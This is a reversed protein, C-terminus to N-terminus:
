AALDVLMGTEAAAAGSAPGARYGSSFFSPLSRVREHLRGELLHILQDLGAADSRGDEPLPALREGSRLLSDILVDLVRLKFISQGGEAAPVAQLHEFRAYIAQAARVPVSVRGQLGQLNQARILNITFGPQAASVGQIVEKGEV